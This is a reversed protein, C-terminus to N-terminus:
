KNDIIERMLRIKSKYKQTKKNYSKIIYRFDKVNYVIWDSVDENFGDIDYLLFKMDTINITNWRNIEGYLKDSKEKNEIWIKIADYIDNNTKPTYYIKELENESYKLNYLDKCSLYLYM